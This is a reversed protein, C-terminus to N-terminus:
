KLHLAACMAYCEGFAANCALAAAPAGPGAVVTGFVLGAGSYCPVVVKACGAQCIGYELQGAESPILVSLVLLSLAM